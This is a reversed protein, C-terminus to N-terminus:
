RREDILFAGPDETLVLQDYDLSHYAANEAVSLIIEAKPMSLRISALCRPAYERSIAGQVIVSVEAFDIM